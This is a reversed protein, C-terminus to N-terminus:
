YFEVVEAMKEMSGLRDKWNASALGQLADGPFLSMM